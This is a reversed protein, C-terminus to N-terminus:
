GLFEEYTVRTPIGEKIRFIQSKYIAYSGSSPILGVLYFFDGENGIEMSEKLALKADDLDWAKNVTYGKDDELNKRLIKYKPRDESVEYTRSSIEKKRGRVDSDLKFVVRLINNPTAFPEDYEVAVEKIKELVEGDVRIAKGAGLM